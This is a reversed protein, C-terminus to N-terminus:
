GLRMRMAAVGSACAMLGALLLSGPEPVALTGTGGVSLKLASNANNGTAITKFRMNGTSSIVFRFSNEVGDILGTIPNDFVATYEAITGLFQLTASQSGLLVDDATNFTMDAGLYRVSVTVTENNTSTGGRPNFGIGTISVDVPGLGTPIALDRDAALSTVTNTDGGGTSTVEDLLLNPAFVTTPDAGAMFIAAGTASEFCAAMCATVLCFRFVNM